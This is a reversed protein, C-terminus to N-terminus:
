DVTIVQRNKNEQVLSFVKYSRPCKQDQSHLVLATYSYSM